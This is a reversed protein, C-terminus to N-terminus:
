VECSSDAQIGLLAAAFSRNVNHIRFQFSGRKVPCVKYEYHLEHGGNLKTFQDSVEPNLEAPCTDIVKFVLQRQTQNLINLRIVASRHIALNSQIIREISIDARKILYLALDAVLIAACISSLWIWFESLLPFLALIAVRRNFLTLLELTELVLRTSEISYIKM